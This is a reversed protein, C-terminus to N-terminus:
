FFQLKLNFSYSAQLSMNTHLCFEIILKDTGFDECIVTLSLYQYYLYLFTQKEELFGGSAIKFEGNNISLFYVKLHTLSFLFSNEENFESFYYSMM